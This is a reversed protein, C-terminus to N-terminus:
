LQSSACLRVLGRHLSALQNVPQDPGRSKAREVPKCWRIQQGKASVYVAARRVGGAPREGRMGRLGDRDRGFSDKRRGIGRTGGVGAHAGEDLLHQRVPVSGRLAFPEEGSQVVEVDATAGACRSVEDRAALGILYGDEGREVRCVLLPEVPELIEGHVAVARGFDALAREAQPRLRPAIVATRRDIGGVSKSAITTPEPM